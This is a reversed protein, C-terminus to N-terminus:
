RRAPAPHIVTTTVIAPPYYWGNAVTGSGILAPDPAAPRAAPRFSAPAVGPTQPRPTTTSAPAGAATVAPAPTTTAPLEPAGIASRGRYDGRYLRGDAGQWTGVWRGSYSGPRSEQTVDDSAIGGLDYGLTPQGGGAATAGSRNAGDAATTAHAAAGALGAALLALRLAPLRVPRLAPLLLRRM